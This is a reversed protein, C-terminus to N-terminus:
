LAVLHNQSRQRLGAISAVVVCDSFKLADTGCLPSGGGQWARDSAARAPALDGVGGAAAAAAAAGSGPAAAAAAEAGAEAGAAAASRVAIQLRAAGAARMWASAQTRYGALVGGAAVRGGRAATSAAGRGIGAVAAPRLAAILEGARRM